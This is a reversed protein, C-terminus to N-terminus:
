GLKLMRLRLANGIVSVSSLAMAAAAIMPSLLLGLFPYLVGAAIPIGAGNYLFAFMLNQRINAMTAKSLARAAVIGMLDSKVLTVGASELAVETGSAMAIGVDAAALAPADNIGDGVMAVVRGQAKLDAVLSLKQAPLADALIMDFGLNAGVARATAQNDGTLMILRLGDAKLASLAKATTPKLPDKIAFIGALKQDVAMFIVTAAGERLTEAANALADTVIGADNLLAASGLRVMRGEVEALVGKGTPADFKKTDALHLGREKAEVVFAHALPHNSGQELSAALRLLDDPQWGNAPVIQVVKPKGVTLTGTKDLVLTDVASLRELAEANKVLVGFSAGRGIGVMISMPTALGLACPCAILLVSVAAILGYTFSPEPGYIYWAAFAVVAALLVLPVFWSAVRDALRQIPARSRQADAVMQVIRALMTHAGVQRAQMTLLGTQNLTGGIITDDSNKAVPMAEGTVMSEDVASVGELIVGDVPVKEGPRVRLHDGVVVQDLSIETETGDKNLLHATKPALNLLARIAGSTRDRARLELIQGLLVLEIIVAAAEFYVAVGGRADVYTSPFVWPALTATLSYLFAVGTGLAILTFMNFNRTLVSLWGRQFFPFGAWLVVPTALALQAYNTWTVPYPLHYFDLVMALIFLPVTFIAGIRFRRSMDVLEPNPGSDASIIKPELAMGCIPCTGPGLQEIQPDMPCTYITNADGKAAPVALKAAPKHAARALYTAGDNEFKTKCGISCFFYNHDDHRTFHKTTVPNVDMGCVLDKVKAPKDSSDAARALFTAPENEFKTKCGASCFFYSKDDHRTFHETTQPDVSMGCVLDKLKVPADAAAAVMVKQTPQALYAAPDKEFKAQCGASCFFYNRDNHRAIYKATLPDVDMGCVLDKVKTPDAKTAPADNHSCGCGSIEHSHGEHSSVPIASM